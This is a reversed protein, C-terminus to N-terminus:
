SLAGEVEVVEPVTRSGTSRVLIDLLDDVNLPKVLHGAMGALRSKERDQPRAHATMAIIPLDLLGLIARIQHTAAYGDMVPMQIDMLVADFRAGPVQLAAVAAQGDSALVVQAGAQTLIHKIVEQNLDNDEAVLLRMQNLRPVSFLPSLHAAVSNVSRGALASSAAELLSRSMLPKALLSQPSFQASATEVQEMEAISAMLILAPLRCGPYAQAQRLMDEGRTEPMKWDLLLLDYPNETASLRLAQLGATTSDVVTTQWGQRQVTQALYQRAVPHRAVILVRYGPAGLTQLPPAAPHGLTLPVTLKFESGQGLTSTVEIQGDMLAALQASITLGLGTGGYLRSTSADAQTFGNFILQRTKDSMGIGTDRVSFQLRVQNPDAREAAPLCQVMVAIEGHHTFKVANSILNLLIQQLRLGDGIFADPVDAAVDLLPEIPKHGIGVGLVPTLSTLLVDLSFPVPDLKLGKAKIKSFDLIDDILTRLVKGSLQIKELYDRQRPNLTSAGLLRTLGLVANLPTRLEHSLNSIFDDKARNAVEAEEKKLTLDVNLVAIEQTRAQVMVELHMQHQVLEIQVRLTQLGFAMQRSIEELLRVEAQSFGQLSPAHVAMVGLVQAQHVVPVSVVSHGVQTFGTQLAQQAPRLEGVPAMPWETFQKHWGDGASAYRAMPAMHADNGPRMLGIWVYQFQGKHCIIECLNILMQQEDKSNVIAKCSESLLATFRAIEARQRQASVAQQRAAVALLESASKKRRQRRLQAVLLLHMSLVLILYALKRIELGWDLVPTLGLQSLLQIKDFATFLLFTAFVMITQASRIKWAQWASIALLLLSVFLYAFANIQLLRPVWPLHFVIVNSIILLWAMGRLGHALRPLHQELQMMKSSFFVMSAVVCSASLKILLVVLAAQDQLVYTAVYNNTLLFFAAGSALFGAYLRYIVERTWAYNVVNLLLMLLLIGLFFANLQGANLQSGQLAEASLLNLQATNLAAGELRLYVRTSPQQLAVVFTPARTPVNHAAFDQGIGSVQEAVGAQYFRLDYIYSPLVELWASQGVLSPPVELDIRLWVPHLHIPQFLKFSLPTFDTRRSVEPWVALGTEDEVATVTASVGALGKVNFLIANNGYANASCLWLSVLVLGTLWQSFFSRWKPSDHTIWRFIFAFGTPPKQCTLAGM